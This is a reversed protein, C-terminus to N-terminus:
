SGQSLRRTVVSTAQQATRRRQFEALDRAAVRYGATGGVFMAPLEGAKIWRRITKVSVNMLEAIDAVSYSVLDEATM